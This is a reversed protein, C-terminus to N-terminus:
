KKAHVFLRESQLILMFNENEIDIFQHWQKLFGSYTCLCYLYLVHVFLHSHSLVLKTGFINLPFIPLPYLFATIYLSLHKSKM